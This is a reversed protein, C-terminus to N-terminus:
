QFVCRLMNWFCLFSNIKQRRDSLHDGGLNKYWADNILSLWPEFLKYTFLITPLVPSNYKDKRYSISETVNYLQLCKLELQSVYISDLTFQQNFKSLILKSKWILLLTCKSKKWQTLLLAFYKKQLKHTTWALLPPKLNFPTLEQPQPILCRVATNIDQTRAKTNIRYLWIGIYEYAM